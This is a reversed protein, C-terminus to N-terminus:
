IIWGKGGARSVVGIDGVIIECQRSPEDEETRLIMDQNINNFFRYNRKPLNGFFTCM